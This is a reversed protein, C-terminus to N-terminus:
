APTVVVELGPAHKKRWQTLLWLDMKLALNLDRYSRGERDTITLRLPEGEPGPVQIAVKPVYRGDPRQEVLYRAVIFNEVSAM